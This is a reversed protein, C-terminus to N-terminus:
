HCTNCKCSGSTRKLPHLESHVLHNRIKRATRFSIFLAPTFALRVLHDAYLHKLNRCNIENLTNHHPHYTVVLPVGIEKNVCDNTLLLDERNRYKVRALQETVM